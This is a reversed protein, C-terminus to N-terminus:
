APPSFEAEVMELFDKAVASMTKQRSWILAGNFPIDLECPATEFDEGAGALMIRRELGEVRGAPTFRRARQGLGALLPRLVREIPSRELDIRRLDVPGGAASAAAVDSPRSRSTWWSVVALPVSAALAAAAIYITIPM